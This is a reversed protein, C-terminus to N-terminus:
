KLACLWAQVGTLESVEGMAAVAESRKLTGVAAVKILEGEKIPLIFAQEYGKRKLQRQFKRANKQSAFSGAVLAYRWQPEETDAKKVEAKPDAQPLVTKAVAVNEEPAPVPQAAVVPTAQLAAEVQVPKPAAMLKTAPRTAKEPSSPMTWVLDFPNLSSLLQGPVRSVTLFSMLGVSGILAIAAAWGWYQRRTTAPHEIVPESELTEAEVLLPEQPKPVPMEVVVEVPKAMTVSVPQMGYSEGYFNHRLEPDFQLKKEQNETFLGVGEVSFSGTERVQAKLQEVFTRIGQQVEERTLEEHLMMYSTLLGDDLRLAENFAVKKRPPLYSGTQESYMAPLYHLIFGGLEPVVICDYQYLLKKLYVPVPVM